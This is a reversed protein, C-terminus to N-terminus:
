INIRTLNTIRKLNVISSTSIKFTDVVQAITAGIDFPDTRLNGAIDTASFSGSLTLDEGFGKAGTDTAALQFNQNDFDVYTFTQNERTNPGITAGNFSGEHSMANYDNNTANNLYMSRISGNAEVGTTNIAQCINNKLYDNPPNDSRIRIVASQNTNTDMGDVIITNGTAIAFGSTGGDMSVAYTQGVTNSGTDQMYVISDRLECRATTLRVGWTIANPKPGHQKWVFCKRMRVNTSGFGTTVAGSDARTSKIQIGEFLVVERCDIRGTTDIRYKTEDWRYGARDTDAARFLISYDNDTVWGNITRGNTDAATGSGVTCIVEHTDLATVLDTQEAAEWTAISSYAANAGSEGNTTGDGGTSATNIYRVVNAM